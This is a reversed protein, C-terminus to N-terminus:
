GGGPEVVSGPLLMRRRIRAGGAGLRGVGDVPEVDVVDDPRFMRGRHCPQLLSCRSCVAWIGICIGFLLRPHVLCWCVNDKGPERRATVGCMQRRLDGGGCRQESAAIRRGGLACQGSGCGLKVGLELAHGVQHDARARALVTCRVHERRCSLEKIADRKRCVGGVAAEGRFFM